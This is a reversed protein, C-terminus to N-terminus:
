MFRGVDSVIEPKKKPPDYFFLVVTSLVLLFLAQTFVTTYSGTVDYVWGIYIPAAINVPLNILAGTGSITSFAKRGFFRGRIPTGSGASLGLGLGYLVTFIFVSTLSTAKILFFIAVANLLQSAIRLYKLRHIPLRDSLVGGVLRAPASIFVMTGLASAATVPDIGMDILHPIQHVSVCPWVLSALMSAVTQVWFPRTRMAERLTFEVEGIEEAIMRQGKEVLSEGGDGDDPVEVTMGDPLLGYYEPRHPKVYFWTLPLGIAWTILGAILFAQRWGYQILMITMIPPIQSAIVALMFRSISTALGRKRVFWNAIATELPGTMGLNFGLSVVFGWLVLFMWLSNVFYMLCLGGGAMLFGVLNVIRPGYKDTFYGGFPGELGGELRNLSYAASLQARSWGFEEILPKFYAGFGYGWVGWGWGTMLGSAIVTWWGPFIKSKKPKTTDTELRNRESINTATGHFTIAV